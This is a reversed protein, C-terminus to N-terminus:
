PCAARTGREVPRIPHVAKVNPLKRLAPLDKVDARIAIGNYANQVQYLVKAGRSAGQLAGLTRAQAARNRAKQSQAARVAESRVVGRSLSRGYEAAAAPEELELMLTQVGSLGQRAEPEGLVPSADGAPLAAARASALRPLVSAGVAFATVLLAISIRRFLRVPVTM